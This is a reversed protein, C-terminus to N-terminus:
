PTSDQDPRSDQTDANNGGPQQITNLVARKLALLHIRIYPRLADDSWQYMWVLDEYVLPSTIEFPDGRSYQQAMPPYAAAGGGTSVYFYDPELGGNNIAVLFQGAIANSAQEAKLGTFGFSFKEHKFDVRELVATPLESLLLTREEEALLCFRRDFATFSNIPSDCICTDCHLTM